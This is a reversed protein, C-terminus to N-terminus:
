RRDERALEHLLIGAAVAVNLSEAPGPTKISIVHDAQSRLAPRLGAGENGVVLAARTARAEATWPAGDVAAALISFGRDRLWSIAEPDTMAHVPVRFTSGAAARVSKPNWADVTGPLAIILAVAFADATRVLTGFNGPDQVGDLVLALAKPPVPPDPEITPIRGALVVGQPSDTAAIRAMTGEDVRRFGALGALRASLAAGRPTDELSPSVVALELVIGAALAEEALRVGEGLFLQRAEREKRRRLAFLLKEAARSLESASM